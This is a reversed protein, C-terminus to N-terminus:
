LGLWLERGIARLTTQPPTSVQCLAVAMAHLNRTASAIRVFPTREAQDVAPTAHPQCPLEVGCLEVFRRQPAEPGGSMMTMTPMQRSEADTQPEEPSLLDFMAARQTALATDTDVWTMAAALEQAPTLVRAALQQRRAANLAFLVVASEVAAWRVEAVQV